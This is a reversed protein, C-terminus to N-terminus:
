INIGLGKSVSSVFGLFSGHFGFDSIKGSKSIGVFSRTITGCFVSFVNFFSDINGVLIELPNNGSSSFQDSFSSFVGFLSTDGTGVENNSQFFMIFGEFNDFEKFFINDSNNFFLCSSM